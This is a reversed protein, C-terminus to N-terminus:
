KLVLLAACVASIASVVAVVWTVRMGRRRGLLGIAGDHALVVAGVHGALLAALQVWRVWGATPLQYDFDWDYTGFLNWGRGIPDSAFIVLNQGDYLAITLNHAVFWALAVPLLAVGLLKTAATRAAAAQAGAEGGPEPEGRGTPVIARVGGMAVAGCMATIWVLGVTNVGAREWGTTTGLVDIWWSTGSLSDFAATAVVVVAIPLLAGTGRGPRPRVLGAIGASLGGFGEGRMVWRTGWFIGGSVAAAAYALLLLGTTRPQLPSPACVFYWEFVWLFGAATWAPALHERSPLNPRMSEVWQVVPVFPNIWRFLDGALVCAVPLLLWWGLFVAWTTVNDTPSQPGALAAYLIAVLLVTGVIHGAIWRGRRDSRRGGGIDDAWAADEDFAEASVARLRATTWGSRLAFATALVAFAGLYGLLWAPAPLSGASVNHALFM